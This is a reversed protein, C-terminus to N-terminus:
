LTSRHEGVAVATVDARAGIGARAGSGASTDTDSCGVCCALALVLWRAVRARQRRLTPAMTKMIHM